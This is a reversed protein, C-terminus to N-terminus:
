DPMIGWSCLPGETLSGWHTVFFTHLTTLLGPYKYTVQTVTVQTQSGLAGALLARM